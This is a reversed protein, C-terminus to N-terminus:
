VNSVFTLEKDDIIDKMYRMVVYGCEHSGPQKPSGYKMILKFYLGAYLNVM